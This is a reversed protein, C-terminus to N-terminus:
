YADGLVCALQSKVFQPEVGVEEVGEVVHAEGLGGGDLGLGDGGGDVALVQEGDGLGTGAFRATSDAWSFDYVGPQNAITYAKFDNTSRVSNFARLVIARLASDRM